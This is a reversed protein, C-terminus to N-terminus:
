AQDHEGGEKLASEALFALDELELQAGQPLSIGKDLIARLRVAIKALAESPDSRNSM